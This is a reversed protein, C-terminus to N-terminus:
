TRAAQKADRVERAASTVDSERRQGAQTVRIGIGSHAPDFCRDHHMEHQVGHMKDAKSIRVELSRGIYPRQGQLPLLARSEMKRSENAEHEVFQEGNLKLEYSLKGM